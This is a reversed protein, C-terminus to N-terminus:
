RSNAKVIEVLARALTVAARPVERRAPRLCPQPPLAPNPSAEDPRPIAVHLPEDSRPDCGDDQQVAEVIACATDPAESAAPTLTMLGIIAITAYM